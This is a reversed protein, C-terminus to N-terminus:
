CSGAGIRDRRPRHWSRCTWRARCEGASNADSGGHRAGDLGAADDHGIWGTAPHDHHRHEGTRDNHDGSGASERWRAGVIGDHDDHNDDILLCLNPEQSVYVGEPAIEFGIPLHLKDAFVTQKDIRTIAEVNRLPQNSHWRNNWNDNM